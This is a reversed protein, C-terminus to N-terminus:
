PTYVLLGTGDGRRLEVKAIDAPAWRTTAAAHVEAGPDATWSGAMEAPGSRGYVYLRFTWRGDDYDTAGYKCHMEIRTGGAFATLGVQASVPGAPGVPRMAVMWASTGSPASASPGSAVVPAHGAPRLAAVGALAAVAVLALTALGLSWRRRIARRRAGALLREVPPIPGAPGSGARDGPARGPGTSGSEGRGGPASAPGAPAGGASGSGVKRGPAADPGPVATGRATPAGGPGAASVGGSGAASGDVLLGEAAPADLRGLLGPLGALDAVEDRCVACGALHAEFATREAPPLAGLVYVGSDVVRDCRM